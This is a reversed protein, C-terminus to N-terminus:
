IAALKRSAVDFVGVLEVDPNEKYLKTHFRGLVGVGIVGVKLKEKSGFLAM